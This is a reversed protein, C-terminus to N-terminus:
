IIAKIVFSRNDNLKAGLRKAVMVMMMRKKRAITVALEVKPMLTRITNKSNRCNFLRSM